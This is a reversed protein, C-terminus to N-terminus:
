PEPVLRPTAETVKWGTADKVLSVLVQYQKGSKSGSLTILAESEQEKGTAIYASTSRISVSGAKAELNQWDSSLDEPSTSAALSSCLDKHATAYDHKIMSGYFHKVADVPEGVELGTSVFNSISTFNWFVALACVLGLALISVIVAVVWKWASRPKASPTAQGIPTPDEPSPSYQSSQDM